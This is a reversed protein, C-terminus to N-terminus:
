VNIVNNFQVVYTNSTPPLDNAEKSSAPTRLWLYIPRCHATKKSTQTSLRSSRKPLLHEPDIHIAPKFAKSEYLECILKAKKTLQRQSAPTEMTRQCSAPRRSHKHNHDFAQQHNHDGHLDVGPLLLDEKVTAQWNLSAPTGYNAQMFSTKKFAQTQPRFKNIIPHNWLFGHGIDIPSLSAMVHWNHLKKLCQKFPRQDGGGERTKFM